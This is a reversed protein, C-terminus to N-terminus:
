PELRLTNGQVEEVCLGYEGFLWMQAVVDDAAEDHRQMSEDCGSLEDARQSARGPPVARLHNFATLHSPNQERPAIDDHFGIAPRESSRGGYERRPTPGPVDLDYSQRRPRRHAGNAALKKSQRPLGLQDTPEAPAP